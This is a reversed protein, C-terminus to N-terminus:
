HLFYGKGGPCDFARLEHTAIGDDQLCLRFAENIAVRDPDLFSMWIQAQIPLNGNLYPCGLFDRWTVVGEFVVGKIRTRFPERVRRNIQELGAFVDDIFNRIERARIEARFALRLEDGLFHVKVIRNISAEPFLRTESVANFFNGRHNQLQDLDVDNSFGSIDLAVLFARTAENMRWITDTPM